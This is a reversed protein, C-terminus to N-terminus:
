RNLYFLSSLAQLVVFFYIEITVGCSLKISSKEIILNVISSAM